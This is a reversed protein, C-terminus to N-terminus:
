KKIGWFTIKKPKLFQEIYEDPVIRKSQIRTRQFILNPLHFLIWLDSMFPPWYYGNKIQYIYTNLHVLVIKIMRWKRFLISTPFDKIITQTMNRFQWYELYQPLKKSSAKHKHFVVAKPCYLSKYGLFQARFAWDVEESYMVYNEDFLGVKIFVERDFLSAGGTVGFVFEERDFQGKDEENWGISKAQGVENIEIGVGDIKQRNYFNLLKSGISAVNDEKYRKACEVLNKLWDPKVETDNNLLAIYKAKSKNVGENIAYVFGYNKGFELIEVEPYHSKIFPISNDDSGNDVILTEFDKFVQKSLSELCEKFIDVGNWNPIIVTVLKNM